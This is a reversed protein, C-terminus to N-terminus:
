NTAHMYIFRFCIIAQFKLIKRDNYDDVCINSDLVFIFYEM